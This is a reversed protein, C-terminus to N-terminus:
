VDEFLKPEWDFREKMLDLIRIHIEDVTRYRRTEDLYKKTEFIKKLWIFVDKHRLMRHRNGRNSVTHDTRIVWTHVQYGSINTYPSDSEKREQRNLETQNEIPKLSVGGDSCYFITFGWTTSSIYQNNYTYINKCM